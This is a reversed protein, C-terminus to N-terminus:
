KAKNSEAEIEVMVEDSVAVGGKDLTKNWSVGFESRKIKTTAGFVVKENGYPDTTTGRFDVDLTVPKSVGHLTLTGPLKFSKGAEIGSVKEAKFEINPFKKADFFDPSVLHEDRKKENTDVSAVDVKINVQSLTKTKEDYDFSGEAKNFRGKVNMLMLHKVKFGVESHSGDIKYTAASAHSAGLALVLATSLVKLIM